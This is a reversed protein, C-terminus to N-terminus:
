STRAVEKTYILASTLIWAPQLCDSSSGINLYQQGDGAIEGRGTAFILSAASKAM